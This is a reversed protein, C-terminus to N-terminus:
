RLCILCVETKPRHVRQARDLVTKGGFVVHNVGESGETRKKLINKKILVRKIM